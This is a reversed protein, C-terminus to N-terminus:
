KHMGEKRKRPTSITSGVSPSYLRKKRKRALENCYNGNMERQFGDGESVRRFMRKRIRVVEGNAFEKKIVIRKEMKPRFTWKGNDRSSLEFTRSTSRGNVKEGIQMSPMGSMVYPIFCSVFVISDFDKNVIWDAQIIDSSKAKKIFNYLLPRVMVEEGLLYHLSLECMEIAKIYNNEYCLIGYSSLDLLGCLNAKSLTSLKSRINQSSIKTLLDKSIELYDKAEKIKKVIWLNMFILLKSALNFDSCLHQKSNIIGEILVQGDHLVRLSKKYQCTRYYLYAFINHLLLRGQWYQDTLSGLDCLMKDAESAKTLVEFTDGILDYQLFKIGISMCLNIYDRFNKSCDETFPLVCYPKLEEFKKCVYSKVEAITLLDTNM